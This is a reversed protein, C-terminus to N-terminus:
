KLISIKSLFKFFNDWFHNLNSKSAGYCWDLDLVANDDAWRWNLMATTRIKSHEKSVMPCFLINSQFLLIFHYFWLIKYGGVFLKYELAKCTYLSVVLQSFKDYGWLAQLYRLFSKLSVMVDTYHDRMLLRAKESGARDVKRWRNNKDIDSDSVGRNQAESNSGRRFSRSIGYSECVDVESRILEPHLRQVEIIRELIGPEWCRHILNPNRCYFLQSLMVLTKM